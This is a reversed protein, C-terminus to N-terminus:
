DGRDAEVYDAPSKLELLKPEVKHEVTLENSLKEILADIDNDGLEAVAEVHFERPMLSGYLKAFEAPKESSMVRLAAKGRTLDSGDKIPEDWVDLLDQLVRQALKNRAGRPRGGRNDTSNFKAM